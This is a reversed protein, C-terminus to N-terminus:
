EIRLLRQATSVTQGPAASIGTVRGARPARVENQMKMAEITILADGAAVESGENVRIAVVLGPLSARVDAPGGHAATAAEAGAIARERRNLVTVAIRRGGLTVVWATASGEVLACVSSTGDTLRLIGRPRDVWEATWADASPVPEAGIRAEHTRRDLLADDTAPRDM